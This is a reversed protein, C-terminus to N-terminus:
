ISWESGSQCVSLHFSGRLSVCAVRNIMLHCASLETRSPTGTENAVIKLMEGNLGECHIWRWTAPPSEPSGSAAADKKLRLSIKDLVERKNDKNAKNYVFPDGWETRKEEKMFFTVIQLTFEKEQFTM